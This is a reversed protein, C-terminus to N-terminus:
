RRTRRGPAVALTLRPARARRRRAAPARAPPCTMAAFLAGDIETSEMLNCEIGLGTEADKLSVQIEFDEEDDDAHDDCARISTARRAVCGPLVAPRAAGPALRGPPPALPLLQLAASSQLLLLLLARSQGAVMIVSRSIVRTVDRM